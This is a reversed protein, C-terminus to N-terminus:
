QFQSIKPSKKEEEEEVEEKTREIEPRTELIAEIRTYRVFTNSILHNAHKNVNGILNAKTRTKKKVQRVCM